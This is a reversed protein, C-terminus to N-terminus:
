NFSLSCCQFHNIEGFVTPKFNCVDYVTLKSIVAVGCCRSVLQEKGCYRISFLTLVAFGWTGREVPRGEQLLVAGIGHKSSEVQIVVEKSVDFHAPTKVNRPGCM